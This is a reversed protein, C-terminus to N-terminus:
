LNGLIHLSLLSNGTYESLAHDLAPHPKASNLLIIRESVATKSCNWLNVNVPKYDRM